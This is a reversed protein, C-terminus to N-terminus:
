RVYIPNSIIWPKGVLFDGLRDLYVEVRYVGKEAVTLEVRASDNAEHIVRGDRLMVIRARVPTSVHLRLGGGTAHLAIEDGMLHEQRDDARAATFRFGTADCFLDFAIYCHGRRLAAAFTEADLPESKSLLAHMRVVRFSREYPDLKFNFFRSDFGVNQHADVGALAVVRRGATTLEDWRKLNDTPKEYFTAFLLDPYSGYSWLGDFFLRAYNIRKTNTYLNYVEIGDYGELTWDRIQEPYAIFSLRGEERARTVLSQLSTHAGSESSALGPVVFLREDGPVSLESGNLFLVGEHSGKLTAETTDVERAPHETMVVFNLANARAAAVIEALTGTSHGGLSSHVHFVGKYDTYPDAASADTRTAELANIDARLRALQYRRYVFPAQSLLLLLLLALLIKRRRRRRKQPRLTAHADPADDATTPAEARM